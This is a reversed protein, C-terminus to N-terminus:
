WLHRRVVRLVVLLALAGALETMIGVPIETSSLSRALTDALVLFSAGFLATVPMLRRHGPGVLLRSLHPVILGLWGIIGAEAVTVAAILTAIGIALYRLRVAPIGLANAEDDGLTLLDLMGAMLLLIAGGPLLVAAMPLLSHMSIRDLSGLLWFVIDSLQQDPDAMFKLISLLATFLANSILGGFILTMPRGGGLRHAIGVGLASAALGGAFATGQIAVLPLGLVIALAAGFGAGSLVGLLGPSVLPNRFAAQYTAGALALAAGMLSAGLFRPLRSEFVLAQVTELESGSLTGGAGCLHLGYAWLMPLRLPYRGASLAIVLSALWLIIALPLWGGALWSRRRM